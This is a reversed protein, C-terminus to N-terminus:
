SPQDGTVARNVTWRRAKFPGDAAVAADTFTGPPVIQVLPTIGVAAKVRRQLALELQPPPQHAATEVKLAVQERGEGDTYVAARYDTVTASELVADDVAEPWVNMGRIKIMNDLRRISGAEYRSFTMGCACRSRPDRRIDDGMRFRICPMASARLTTIVLEGREGPGAEAGDPRLVEIFTRHDLGHLTGRTVSKGAGVLAGVPCTALAVGLTQTAGWGEHLQAGWFEQMDHGWAIGYPEGSLVITRLWPLDTAPHLGMGRAMATLRHLHSPTASLGACRYVRLAELRGASDLAFGNVPVVHATECSAQFYPGAMTQSYPITLLLRDGGGLGAWLYSYAGGTGLAALDHSDRPYVERGMGSTGSTLHVQRIGPLSLGALLQGGDFAVLDAKTVSPVERQADAWTRLRAPNLSHAAYFWRYFPVEQHARTIIDLIRREAFTRIATAPAQEWFQNAGRGM